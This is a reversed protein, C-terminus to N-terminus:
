DTWDSDQSQWLRSVKAMLQNIDTLFDVFPATLDHDTPPDFAERALLAKNLSTIDSRLSAEQTAHKKKLLSDQTAHRKELVSEREEAAKEM